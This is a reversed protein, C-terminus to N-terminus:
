GTKIILDDHNYLILIYKSVSKMKQITFDYSKVDGRGNNMMAIHGFMNQLLKKFIDHAGSSEHFGYAFKRFDLIVIEKSVEVFRLIDDLIPFIPSIEHNENFVWFRGWIDLSNHFSRFYGVSFDLYRIGFVLQHWVDLNQHFDEASLHKRNVNRETAYCGSCATGPIVLHKLPFLWFEKTNTMWEPNVKLCNFNTVHNSNNFSLAYYNLCNSDSGTTFVEDSKGDQYTKIDWKSPLKLDKLNIETDIQGTEFKKPNIEILVPTKKLYPNESYIRIKTPIESCKPDWSVVLNADKLILSNLSVTLQVPCFSYIKSFFNVLLIIKVLTYM